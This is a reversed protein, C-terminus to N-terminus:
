LYALLSAYDSRGLSHMTVYLSLLGRTGFNMVCLFFHNYCYLRICGLPQILM